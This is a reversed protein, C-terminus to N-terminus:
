YVSEVHRSATFSALAQALAARLAVALDKAVVDLADGLRGDAAERAAAAHLADRAEDVLLGAAHELNEELVHDAVRHRVGLVRAALGHGGHVHHVRKLALALRKVAEAALSNLLSSGGRKEKVSLTCCSSRRVPSVVGLSTFIMEGCLFFLVRASERGTKIFHVLEFSAFSSLVGTWSNKGDFVQENLSFDFLM